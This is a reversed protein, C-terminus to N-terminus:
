YAPDVVRSPLGWDDEFLRYLGGALQCLTDAAEINKRWYYPIKEAGLRFGLIAGAISGTSDSDGSHNVAAIMAKRFDNPYKFVCYLSIALAEEGVWGGGLRHINEVDSSSSTFALNYASQVAFLTEEHFSYGKLIEVSGKYAEVLGCGERLFAIMASLFGAPLYGSPHGHTIAAAEAGHVFALEPRFILGIPATRMVGGCGKSDNIPATMSGMKGSQLATLCTMGPARRQEPIAQSDLWHLYEKYITKSLRMPPQATLLGLATAISMQTDDTFEYPPKRDRDFGTRGKPGYERLIQDYPKFEVPWGFADGIALGLICGLFQNKLTSAM